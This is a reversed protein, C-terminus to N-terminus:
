FYANWQSSLAFVQSLVGTKTKNQRPHTNKNRQKKNTKRSLTERHLGPHGPVRKM